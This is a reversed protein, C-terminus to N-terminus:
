KGNICKDIIVAVYSGFGHCCSAYPTDKEWLTGTHKAMKAFYNVSEKLTQKYLKEQLLFDFRLFNGIFANSRMKEPYKHYNLPGYNEILNHKFSQSVPIGCFLAYYQCTESLNDKLPHLKDNKRIANDVFLEGNFSFKVITDKLQKSQDILQQDGYLEGACELCKAYLMNSPFNVGKLHEPTNCISWEVFVWKDLNELLGYENQYKKFYEIVGYVKNKAKKVLEKDNVRKLRDHLQIVFFMAWNPIYNHNPHEAPFCMPLMGKDIEPTDAVIFNELFTREIKNDNTYLYETKALFYSDCLWGARERGPCDTFLDVAHHRYTNEASKLVLNLDSKTSRLKKLKTSNEYLVLQPTVTAKGDVIIKLHQLTYPEFSLIKTQGKNVKVELIDNTANRRFFWDNDPLIEDFVCVIKAQTKAKIKLSIFGSKLQKLKYDYQVLGKLKEIYGLVDFKILGERADEKDKWYLDVTTKNFGNFISKKIFKFNIKKYSATDEGNELLVPASVPITELPILKPIVLDFLEVYGRQSSYKPSDTNNGTYEYCTFDNTTKIVKGDKVIEAGFFPLQRDCCFSNCNYGSIKIVLETTNKLNVQRLRSYGSATRSPGYTILKGDSFVQYFDVASINLTCPSKDLKLSFYIITNQKERDKIWVYNM